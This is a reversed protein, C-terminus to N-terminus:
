FTGNKKKVEELITDMRVKIEELKETMEQSSQIREPSNWFNKVREGLQRVREAELKEDLTRKFKEGAVEEDLKNNESLQKIQATTENIAEESKRLKKHLETNFEIIFEEVTFIKGTESEITINQRNHRLFEFMTRTSGFFTGNLSSVRGKPIHKMFLDSFEPTDPDTIKGLYMRSEPTAGDASSKVTAYFNTKM